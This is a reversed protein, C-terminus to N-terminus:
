ARHRTPLKPDAASVLHLREDSAVRAWDDSDVALLPSKLTPHGQNDEWAPLDPLRTLVARIMTRMMRLQNRVNTDAMPDSAVHRRLATEFNEPESGTLLRVHNTPAGVEFAGMKQDELYYALQAIEFLPFGQAAAVKSLLRGPIDRFAVKRGIVRAFIEAMDSGSLLEPGTPRYDQGVHSQPDILTAVVCRAIDATSPPANRGEGIPMTFLGFQAAGPTAVLYIDAFLGPNVHVLPVTPMWRLLNNALWHERTVVSPHTPHPTWQSLLTMSELHAEEAALAFMAAGHLLNSTIPPCYYARDVGTLAVQLDRLDYLNGAFVEAGAASLRNARADRHRVFARVPYGLELLQMATASGTRGSAATVLILPLDSNRGM